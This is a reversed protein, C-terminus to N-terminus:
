PFFNASALHLSNTIALHLLGCFCVRVQIQPPFRLLASGWTLLKRPMWGVELVGNQTSGKAINVPSRKSGPVAPTHLCLVQM